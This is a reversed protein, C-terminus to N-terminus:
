GGSEAGMHGDPPFEIMMNVTSALRVKEFSFDFPLHALLCARLSRALSFVAM